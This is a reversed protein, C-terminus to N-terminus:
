GLRNNCFRKESSNLCAPISNKTARPSLCDFCILAFNGCVCEKVEAHWFGGCIDAFGRRPLSCFLGNNQRMRVHPHWIKTSRQTPLSCINPPNMPRRSNTSEHTSSALQNPICIHGIQYFHRNQAWNPPSGSGALNHEQQKQSNRAIKQARM